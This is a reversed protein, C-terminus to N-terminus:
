ENLSFDKVTVYYAKGFESDDIDITAGTYDPDDDEEDDVFYRENSNIKDLPFILVTPKSPDNLPLYKQSYPSIQFGGSYALEVQLFNVEEKYEQILAFDEKTPPVCSSCFVFTLRPAFEIVRTMINKLESADVGNKYDKCEVVASLENAGERVKFVGDVKSLDGTRRYRSVFCGSDIRALASFNADERDVSYLFPVLLSSLWADFPKAKRTFELQILYRQERPSKFCNSILNLVFDKGNVGALTSRRYRGHSHQSSDVIAVATAVEFPKGPLKLAEANTQINADNLIYFVPNRFAIFLSALIGFFDDPFFRTYQHKWTEAEALESRIIKVSDSARFTVFVDGRSKVPKILNFLHDEMFEQYKFVYDCEDETYSSPFLLGCKELGSKSMRSMCSALHCALALALHELFNALTPPKTFKEQSIQQNLEKIKEVILEAVGPLANAISGAFLRFFAGNFVKRQAADDPKLCVNMLSEIDRYASHLLSPHAQNLRSFVVSWVTNEAGAETSVGISHAINSNTNSVICPLGVAIALNRAYVSRSTDAFSDLFVCFPGLNQQKSKQHFEDISLPRFHFENLNAYTEMWEEVPVDKAIQMLKFWFGLVSLQINRHEALWAPSLLPQIARQSQDVRVPGIVDADVLVSESEAEFVKGLILLDEYALRRLKSSKHDFWQYIPQMPPAEGRESRIALFYLVKASRIAFASQTKGEYSPTTLAIFASSFDSGQPFYTGADNSAFFGPLDAVMRNLLGINTSNFNSQKSILAGNKIYGLLDNRYKQDVPNSYYESLSFKLIFEFVVM